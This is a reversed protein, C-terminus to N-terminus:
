LRPERHREDPELHREVRVRRAREADRAVIMGFGSAPAHALQRRRGIVEAGEHDLALAPRHTGPGPIMCPAVQSPGGHRAIRSPGVGGPGAAGLVPCSLSILIVSPASRSSISCTRRPTTLRRCNMSVMSARPTVAGSAAWARDAPPASAWRGAWAWPAKTGVRRPPPPSRLIRMHSAGVM